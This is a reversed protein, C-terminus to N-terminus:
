PVPFRTYVTNGTGYAGHNFYNYYGEYGAYTGSILPSTGNVGQEQRVRSALHYPSVNVAKAIEMFATAYNLITGDGNDIEKTM